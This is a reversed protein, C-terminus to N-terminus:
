VNIMVVHYVNETQLIIDMVVIMLVIISMILTIDMKVHIVNLLILNQANWVLIKLVNLVFEMLQFMILKVIKLVNVMKLIIHIKVNEVNMM